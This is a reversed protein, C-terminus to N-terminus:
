DEGLIARLNELCRARMPGISGISRGLRAAVVSYTPEGNDLYLLYLLERCPSKLRAIADVLVSMREWESLSDATHARDILRHDPAVPAAGGSVPADRELRRRTRWIQRRAVTMLWRALRDDDRLSELSDLLGVFTTQTVDAADNVSLGGDRAASYILSEYRRVLVDWADPDRDRCRALLEADSTAGEISAGPSPDSSPAPHTSVVPDLQM